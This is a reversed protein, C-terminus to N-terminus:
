LGIASSAGSSSGTIRALRSEQRHWIIQYYGTACFRYLAMQTEDDRSIKHAGVLDLHQMIARAQEESSDPFTDDPVFEQELINEWTQRSETFWADHNLFFASMAYIMMWPVLFLGTYLHGARM